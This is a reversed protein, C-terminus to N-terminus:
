KVLMTDYSPCPPAKHTDLWTVAEPMTSVEKRLISLILDQTIVTNLPSGYIIPQNRGPAKLIFPVRHDLRGDYTRSFRWWHDSSVIVWSRDWQGAQEMDHRLIGMTKDTLQLNQLYGRAISFSTITFTGKRPDYIGPGHPGVLHLFILGYRADTVLHRSVDLQRKYLNVHLWRQQVATAMASIQAIMSDILTEGRAVQKEAVPAWECFNLCSPFLRSYPHLWGVVATNFGLNHVRCFVSPQTSWGVPAKADAYSISLESRAVPVAKVVYRGTILAPLSIITAGAPPFANTAQLSEACLRDFEPLPCDKPRASFALREDLEDYIIWVVRPGTVQNTTSFLAPFPPAPVVPRLKLLHYGIRGVTLCFSPFMILLGVGLLHVIRRPRRWSVLLMVFIGGIFFPNTILDLARTGPLLSQRTFDLPIVLLGCAIMAATWYLKPSDCRRVWRILRWGVIGFLLFNLALAFLVQATFPITKYYGFTIRYFLEYRARIFCLNVLSFAMM